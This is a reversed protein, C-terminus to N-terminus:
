LSVELAARVPAAETNEIFLPFCYLNYIGETVNSLDINELIPVGAGLFIQHAPFTTSDIPDITIYDIGVLKIKKDRLYKATSESIHTNNNIPHIGDFNQTKFLVIDNEEISLNEIDEISIEQKRNIEVVWAKGCLEELKYKDLSKGNSYFHKPSDIHTGTHTGMSIHTVTSIDGAMTNSIFNSKYTPDGPYVYTNESIKRTIDILM